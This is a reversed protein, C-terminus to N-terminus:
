KRKLFEVFHTNYIKIEYTTLKTGKLLKIWKDLKNLPTKIIIEGYKKNELNM